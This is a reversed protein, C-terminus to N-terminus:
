ALYKYVLSKFKFHNRMPRLAFILVQCNTSELCLKNLTFFVYCFMTNTLEPSVCSRVTPTVNPAACVSLSITSITKGHELPKLHTTLDELCPTSDDSDSYQQIQLM